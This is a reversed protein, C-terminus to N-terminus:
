KQGVIVVTFVIMGCICHRGREVAPGLIESVTCSSFGQYKYDGLLIQNKKHAKLAALPPM